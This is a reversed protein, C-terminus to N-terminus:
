YRMWHYCLAPIVFVAGVYTVIAFFLSDKKPISVVTVGFLIQIVHMGLVALFCMTMTCEPHLEFLKLTLVPPIISFYPLAELTADLNEKFRESYTLAGEKKTNPKKPKKCTSLGTLVTM